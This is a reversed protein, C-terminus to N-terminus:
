IGGPPSKKPDDSKRENRLSTLRRAGPKPTACIVDAFRFNRRPRSRRGLAASV